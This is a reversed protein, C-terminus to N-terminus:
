LLAVPVWEQALRYPPPFIPQLAFCHSSVLASCRSYVSNSHDPRMQSAKETMVISQLSYLSTALAERRKRLWWSSSSRTLLVDQFAKSINAWNVERLVVVAIEVVIVEDVDVEEAIMIEGGSASVDEEDDGEELLVINSTAVVM